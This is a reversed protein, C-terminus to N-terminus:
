TVFAANLRPDTQVLRLGLKDPVGRPRPSSLSPSPPWDEKDHVQLRPGASRTTAVFASVGRDLLSGHCV